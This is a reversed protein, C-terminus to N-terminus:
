SLFPVDGPLFSFAKARPRSSSASDASISDCRAVQVTQWSTRTSVGASESTSVSRSGAGGAAASDASDRGPSKVRSAATILGLAGLGAGRDDARDWWSM